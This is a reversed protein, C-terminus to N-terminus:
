WRAPQAGRGLLEAGVEDRQEHCMLAIVEDPPGTELESRLASLEDDFVPAAAPDRGAQFLGARLGALV